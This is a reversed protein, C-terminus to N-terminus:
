IDNLLYEIDDIIIKSSKILLATEWIEICINYDLPYQSLWKENGVEIKIDQFGISTFEYYDCNKFDYDENLWKPKELWLFSDYDVIELTHSTEFGLNTVLLEFMIKKNFCDFDMKKITSGWISDCVKIVDDM